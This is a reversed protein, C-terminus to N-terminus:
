AQLADGVKHHGNAVVGHQTVGDVGQLNLQLVTHLRQQRLTRALWVHVTANLEQCPQKEQQAADKKQCRGDHGPIRPRYHAAQQETHAHSQEQRGHPM